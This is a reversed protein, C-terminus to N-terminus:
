VIENNMENRTRDFWRQNNLEFQLDFWQKTEFLFFDIKNRFIERYALYVNYSIIPEHNGRENEITESM